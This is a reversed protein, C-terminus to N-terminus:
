LITPSYHGFQGRATTIANFLIETNHTMDADDLKVIFISKGPNFSFLFNSKISRFKNLMTGPKNMPKDMSKDMSKDMPKDMPKEKPKGM